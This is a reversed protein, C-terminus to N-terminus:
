QYRDPKRSIRGSRTKYTTTVPTTASDTVPDCQTSSTSDLRDTQSLNTSNSAVVEQVKATEKEAKAPEDPEILPGPKCVPFLSSVPETVQGPGPHRALHKWNISETEQRGVRSIVAYGPYAAAIQVLEGTPDNKSQVFRRLWAYSGAPIVPQTVPPFPHNFTLFLNHPNSGTASCSLSRICYLAEGLYDPWFSSEVKHQALICLLTQWIIGNFRECQSNGTPNYLAYYPESARGM